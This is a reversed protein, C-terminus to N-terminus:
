TFYSEPRGTLPQGVAKEPKEVFKTLVEIDFALQKAASGRLQEFFMKLTPEDLETIKTHDSLFQQWGNVSVKLAQVSKICGAMYGFRDYPELKELVEKLKRIESSISTSMSEEIGM